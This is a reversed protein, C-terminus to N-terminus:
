QWKAQECYRHWAMKTSTCITNEGAERTVQVEESAKMWIWSVQVESWERDSTRGGVDVEDCFLVALLARGTSGEIGGAISKMSATHFAWFSNVM